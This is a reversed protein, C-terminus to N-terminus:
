RVRVTPFSEHTSPGVEEILDRRMEIDFRHSPAQVTFVEGDFTYEFRPAHVHNHMAEVPIDMGVKGASRRVCRLLKSEPLNVIQDDVPGM